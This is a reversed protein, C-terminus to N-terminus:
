YIYVIPSFCCFQELVVLVNLVYLTGCWLLTACEFVINAHLNILLMTLCIFAGCRGTLIIGSSCTSNGFCSVVARFLSFRECCVIAAGCCDGGLFTAFRSISM